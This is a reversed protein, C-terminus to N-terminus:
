CHQAICTTKAKVAWRFLVLTGSQWVIGLTVRAIRTGIKTSEYLFQRYVLDESMAEVWVSQGKLRSRIQRVTRSPSVFGDLRGVPLMYTDNATTM